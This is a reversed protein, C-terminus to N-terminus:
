SVTTPHTHVETTIDQLSHLIPVDYDHITEAMQSCNALVHYWFHPVGKSAQGGEVPAEAELKQLDEPTADQLLPMQCEEDGPEREGAVIAKRAAHVADFLPQFEQELEHVRQYFAAEVNISELQNKKLARVRRLVATSCETLNSAYGGLEADEDDYGGAKLLETLNKKNGAMLQNNQHHHNHNHKESM